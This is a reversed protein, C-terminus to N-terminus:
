IKVKENSPKRRHYVVMPRKVPDRNVVRPPSSRKKGSNFKWVMYTVFLALWASGMFILMTNSLSSQELSSSSAFASASSFVIM